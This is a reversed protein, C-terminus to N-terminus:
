VINYPKAFIREVLERERERGSGPERKIKIESKCDKQILIRHTYKISYILLKYYTYIYSLFVYTANHLSHDTSLSGVPPYQWTPWSAMAKVNEKKRYTKIDMVELPHLSLNPISTNFFSNWNKRTSIIQKSIVLM